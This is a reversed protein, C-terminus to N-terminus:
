TAGPWPWEMRSTAAPGPGSWLGLSAIHCRTLAVGNPIHCRTWPWEVTRLKSHVTSHGQVRQWMGFPTARVRHWMALKPAGPWPWEMRSTAADLAVGSAIRCRTLAVGNPIHCRTWPWECGGSQSRSSATRFLLLCARLLRRLYSQDFTLFVHEQYRVSKGWLPNPDLLFGAFLHSFAM